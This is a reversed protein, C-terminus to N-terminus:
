NIYDRIEKLTASLEADTVTCYYVGDIYIVWHGGMQDPVFTKKIMIEGGM